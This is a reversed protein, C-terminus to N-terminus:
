QQVATERTKWAMGVISIMPKETTMRFSASVRDFEVIQM